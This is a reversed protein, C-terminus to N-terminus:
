FSIPFYLLNNNFVFSEYKKSMSDPIREKTSHSGVDEKVIAQFNSEWEVLCSIVIFLVIEASIESM